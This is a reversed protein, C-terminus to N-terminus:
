GVKIKYTPNTMVVKDNKLVTVNKINIVGNEYTVSEYECHLNSTAAQSTVLLRDFTSTTDVYESVVIGSKNASNKIISKNGSRGSRYIITNEEIEVNTASSLENRFESLTTSLLTSANARDVVGFYANSATSISGAALASLLVVILCSILSETLTFGKNKNKIEKM